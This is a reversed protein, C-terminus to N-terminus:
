RKSVTTQIISGEYCARIESPVAISLEKRIGTMPIDNKIFMPGTPHIAM